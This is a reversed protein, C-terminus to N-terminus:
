ETQWEDCVSHYFNRNKGEKLWNEIFKPNESKPRPSATNIRAMVPTRVADGLIVAHQQPLIPLQNLVESSASSVLKRIYQQDDPNQLRHIVFSNCQSLVTKSLESPRQSSIVLSLGYKRGERAIREFVKRSISTRDKKNIEPIYNQAEELVMVIPMSGRDAENFRSVFELIIRGVLGTITELVESPLLSMDLITVQNTSESIQSDDINKVYQTYIDTDGSKYVKCFDGLVFAIFKVLVEEIDETADMMLPSAIRMDDKFSQMRMKLTSVYETLRDSSTEQERIAVDFYMSLLDSFNYFIPLDLNRNESTSAVNKEAIFKDILDQLKSLVKNVVSVDVPGNVYGKNKTLNRKEKALEELCEFARIKNYCKVNSYSIFIPHEIGKKDTYKVEKRVPDNLLYDSADIKKGNVHISIEKKFIRLLYREFLSEEINQKLLKLSLRNHSHTKTWESDYFDEITICYYTPGKKLVSEETNIKVTDINSQKFDSARLPVLIKSYEKNETSYGVSEITVKQGLQLAAFRGVGKGGQKNETGINLLKDNVDDQYVGNGDDKIVMRNIIYPSITDENVYDIDIWINKANAQISNNILECFAGFTNPYNTFIKRVLSTSASFSREMIM